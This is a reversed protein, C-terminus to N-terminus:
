IREEPLFIVDHRRLDFVKYNNKDFFKFVDQRITSATMPYLEVICIPRCSTITEQSGKLAEYEHGEVDLKILEVDDFEFSDLTTVQCETHSGNMTLKTAGTWNKPVGLHSREGDDHYATGIYSSLGINHATVDVGYGYNAINESLCEFVDKRIEFCEIKDCFDYFVPMFWGYSAGGDIFRKSSDIKDFLINDLYGRFNDLWAGNLISATPLNVMNKDQEYPLIKWTM